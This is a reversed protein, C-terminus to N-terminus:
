YANTYGRMKHIRRVKDGVKSGYKAAEKNPLSKRRAYRQAGQGIEWPAAEPDAEVGKRAFDEPLMVPKPM